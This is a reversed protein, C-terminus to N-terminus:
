DPSTGKKEVNRKGKKLSNLYGDIAKMATQETTYSGKLADPINGQGRARIRYMSFTGDGGLSYGRYDKGKPAKETNAM